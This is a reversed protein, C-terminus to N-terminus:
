KLARQGNPALQFSLFEKSCVDNDASAEVPGEAQDLNGLTEKQRLLGKSIDNESNM